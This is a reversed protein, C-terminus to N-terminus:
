IKQKVNIEGKRTTDEGTPLPNTHPTSKDNCAILYQTDIEEYTKILARRYNSHEHCDKKTKRSEISQRAKCEGKACHCMLEVKLKCIKKM